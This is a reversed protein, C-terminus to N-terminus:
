ILYCIKVRDNWMIGDYFIGCGDFGNLLSYFSVIVELRSIGMKEIKSVDFKIGIFM